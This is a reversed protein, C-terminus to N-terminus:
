RFCIRVGVHEHLEIYLVGGVSRVLKTMKLLKNFALNMPAMVYSVLLFTVLWLSIAMYNDGKNKDVLCMVMFGSKVRGVMAWTVQVMIEGHMQHQERGVGGERKIIKERCILVKSDGVRLIDTYQPM